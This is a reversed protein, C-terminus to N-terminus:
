LMAEVSTYVDALAKPLASPDKGGAEAMDPRGGGKGGVAQAVAGALKGAHVKATLDKTVGSVISVNSDEATALVVVATKWKNRLSDVLTRLQARDFGNVQVALVKVGKVDRAQTELDGAEAQAMKTKLQQLEHELAKERAQLKELDVGAFKAQQQLAEQFRRLAGEGTIAEIRRVGASISGEYVIKCIGIDGTRGVHTGGCLEKSFTDGDNGIRVVRVRDGYKEGFLAMAGTQLAQDLDMVDTVVERNALIQENMLREVEALEDQDMATYHTFDFRLRSPEVVSGAQKVHTGLVTRLAAHLLHTGTHNRMTAHRSEPDVRAIVIDGEKIPNLLKVKHVTKGPAPAYASEVTALTQGNESVLVGKDGVQGGAEAYFPTRDLAVEDHLVATVKAPAELTERGLFETKPLAQYVPNIHAKEAGKWSARARARQKEMEAAFGEADISIGLERAMDQQEELALGYTDYLKFSAAGSITGTLAGGKAEDQFFKEAVQFTTAYRHEEDKVVRAVRSVSEMMEPYADRMHEAVFGTLQYLYPDSVGVMRANRMARRMIKRLVYGRGENSPLVGDNILFATSRAHDANIRLSTDTRDEDGYTKKFLEGARDIIPRLLDTEYNSLKGQLVAAMRELGMGTDVSPKPLPTLKGSSDRDFQMFVLNWIELFREGPDDPFTGPGADPGLDYHIESNPGCPGTEGMQWFNYDEGLRFIRDKPVGAVEQWLKEAEDDERFVTFYLRDKPLGYGKTMLEWAFAIADRQFYDGFSFNGLMEFFTHHRRTYGVNDLDNHKGGARVCKQSTAARTYDRKEQGLFVDKFQNMGANTFLLTPDNAPVLSSSRVVRHGREAFYDLFKLRIQSGTM